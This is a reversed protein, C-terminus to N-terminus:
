WAVATLQVLYRHRVATSPSMMTDYDDGCCDHNCVLVEFCGVVAGLGLEAGVAALVFIGDLSRSSAFMRWISPRSCMFHQNTASPTHWHM